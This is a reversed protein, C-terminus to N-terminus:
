GVLGEREAVSRAPARMLVDLLFDAEEHHAVNQMDRLTRLAVHVGDGTVRHDAVRHRWHCAVIQGDETLSGRMSRLARALDPADWYYGIESFVILDFQGEPWERPLVAQRVEVHDFGKLRSRARAVAEDAADVATLSTCREALRATLAGTACGLELVRDYRRAPLSALLVARKREEYWRSDFGWPDDHRSYFGDFWSTPISGTM